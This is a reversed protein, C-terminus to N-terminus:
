TRCAYILGQEPAISHVDVHFGAGKLARVCRGTVGPCVNEHYEVIVQEVRALTAASAGELIDGEAGECDIKLLSIKRDVAGNLGIVPVRIGEGRGHYATAVGSHEGLRLTVEGPERGLAEPHIFVRGGLRNSEINRTLVARTSPNPEYSHVVLSPARSAFDLTTMGINGGIDIMTEEVPKKLYRRYCGEAFIELLLMVPEDGPQHHVTFGARFELPPITASVRYASWVARWNKLWRIFQALVYAAYLKPNRPLM